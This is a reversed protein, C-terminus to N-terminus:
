ERCMADADRGAWAACGPRWGVGACIVCASKRASGCAFTGTLLSVRRGEEERGEQACRSCSRQWRWGRARAAHGDMAAVVAAFHGHRVGDGSVDRECGTTDGATCCTTVRPNLLHTSSLPVPLMSSKPSPCVGPPSSTRGSSHVPYCGHETDDGQRRWLFRNHRPLPEHIILRLARTREKVIKM